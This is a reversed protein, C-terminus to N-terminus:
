EYRLAVIPDVRSARRAPLLGALTAVAAMLSAAVAMTVADAAHVRFLISSIWHSGLRAAAIAAPIGAALGAGVLLFVERMVMRLVSASSAGLVVRIGIERTRRAVAYSMVGYLGITALLTALFGFVSSLSAVMRETSLSESIEEETTRMDAVSINADLEHVKERAARMVPAPDGATRLYVTMGAQGNFGAALYPLFVQDPINERLDTYKMDKVVGIVEMNTKTGPDGGFGIHRGLPDRGAFYHRAFSENIIAVPSAEELDVHPEFPRSDSETFDRGAVVSVGLTAFYNPSIKNMSAEVPGGAPPPLYGEVTLGAGWGDGDLIRVTALGVSQVGPITRLDETLRQYFAKSQELTYGNLWPNLEFGILRQVPFGPGVSRLNALTRLFVGAGVLLVLSVAVQVMVLARRGHRRAGRVVAGAEDKLVGILDPKTSQLAPALGFAVGTLCTVALTFLLVRLDPATSVGLSVADPFYLVLLAQDAWFALALGAFGGLWCLMSSEVFLQRVIRSRSAGIALRVAIEKRRGTSRFLLFNALNACAILLVFGTLAMLVWLPARLDDRIYSFGASGPVLNMWCKLYQERDYASAHSFGPERVEMELVSHMLPQLSASAQERTIGPKLRGIARIWKTRRDVLALIDRQGLFGEQMMVPVFVSVPRDFEMGGFGPQAVGIVTLKHNNLLLAKGLIGPDGGFRQKWFSYSLVVLPEGNPIRDDDPTFTRGLAANVGLVNFYTGSVLEGHIREAQGGSSLSGQFHRFCFMGSFAENHDQFDRYMPYSIVSPGSSSNGYYRGQMDLLVLQQPNKVPLSRLLVQDLLSFIATNAGIGLTLTLIAVASFGPSKRLMRLGFRLDQSCGDLANLGRAERCEEKAREVAGFEMKARRTAEERPVGSRVLDETRAEIHFFLESELQSEMRLRRLTSNLSSRLRKWHTM